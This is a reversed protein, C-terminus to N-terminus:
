TLMLHTSFSCYTPESSRNMPHHHPPLCLRSIRKNTVTLNNFRAGLTKLSSKNRWSAFTLPTEKWQSDLLGAAKESYSEGPSHAGGGGLRVAECRQASSFHSTDRPWLTVTMQLETVGPTLPILLARYV